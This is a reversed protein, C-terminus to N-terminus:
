RRVLKRADFTAPGGLTANVLTRGSKGSGQPVRANYPRVLPTTVPLVLTRSTPSRLAAAARAGIATPVSAASSRTAAPHPATVTGGPPHAAARLRSPGHAPSPLRAATHEAAQASAGVTLLVSVAIALYRGTM